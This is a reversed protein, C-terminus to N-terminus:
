NTGAAAGCRACGYLPFKPSLSAQQRRRDDSTLPPLRRIRIGDVHTTLREPFKTIADVLGKADNCARGAIVSGERVLFSKVFRFRRSSAKESLVIPKLM